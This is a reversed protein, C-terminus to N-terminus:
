QRILSLTHEIGTHSSVHHYHHIILHSIHHDNPLLVPHKADTEIESNCLRGGVGIIGDVLIPDLKFMGSSKKVVKQLSSLLTLEDHFCASQTAKIIAREADEIELVDLPEIKGAPTVVVTEQRKRKNVACQLRSKYRLM